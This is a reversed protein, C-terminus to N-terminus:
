QSIAGPPVVSSKTADTALDYGAIYADALVRNQTSFVCEDTVNDWVGWAAAPPSAGADIAENQSLRQIQIHGDNSSVLPSQHTEFIPAINM